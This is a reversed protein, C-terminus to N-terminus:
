SFLVQMMVAVIVLLGLTLLIGQFPVLKGGRLSSIKKSLWPTISTIVGGVLAGVYFVNLAYTQGYAGIWPLYLAKTESLLPALPLVTTLFSFLILAPKQFPFFQRKLANAIWWGISVAFAGIFIAIVLTSVGLYAAGGAAAAAGVTCLPCHAYAAKASVLLM